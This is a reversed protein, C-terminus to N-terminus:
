LGAPFIVPASQEEWVEYKLMISLFLESEKFRNLWDRLNSYDSAEFWDLNVHACQRIFPLLAMDALTLQGGVLYGSNAALLGELKAFWEECMSRYYEQSHEPYRDAYKYRDLWPKFSLDNEHILQDIVDAHSSEYWGNPDNSNLAWRMIDISEDIVEGCILQLVPVTGKPSIKLMTDPKNRLVIERLEVAVQSYAIALRARMAYPCRRFSYLTPKSSQNINM